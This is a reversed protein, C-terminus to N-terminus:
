ALAGTITTFGTRNTDDATAYNEESKLLGDGIGRLADNLLRANQNWQDKLALFSTAADGQWGGPVAELAGLLSSLQTQIQDNVQYVHDAAQHMTPLETVFQMSM